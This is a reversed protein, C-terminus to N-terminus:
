EKAWKQMERLANELSKADEIKKELETIQKGASSIRFKQLDDAFKAVKKNKKYVISNDVTEALQKRYDPDNIFMKVMPQWKKDSVLHVPLKVTSADKRYDKDSITKVLHKWYLPEAFKKLQNLKHYNSASQHKKKWEKLKSEFIKRKEKSEKIKSNLVGTNPYILKPWVGNSDIAKIVGNVEFYKILANRRNGTKPSNPFTKDFDELNVIIGDM